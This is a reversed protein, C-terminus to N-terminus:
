SSIHNNKTCSSGTGLEYNEHGKGYFFIYDDAPKTGGRVWRVQVGVLDLNCKSMEEAVARLSGVM